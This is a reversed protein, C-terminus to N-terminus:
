LELNNGEQFSLYTVTAQHMGNKKVIYKKYGGNEAVIIRCKEPLDEMRLCIRDDKTVRWHGTRKVGNRMQFIEGDPAYYSVSRRGQVVTVSHVTKNSFLATIEQATLTGAPLAIAGQAGAKEAQFVCAAALIGLLLIRRVVSRFRQM